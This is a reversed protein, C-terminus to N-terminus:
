FSCRRLPQEAEFPQADATTLWIFLKAAKPGHSGLHIIDALDQHQVHVEYACQMSSQLFKAPQKLLGLWGLRKQPNGFFLENPIGKGPLDKGQIIAFCFMCRDGNQQHLQQPRVMSLWLFQYNWHTDPHKKAIESAVQSCNKPVNAVSIMWNDLGIHFSLTSSIIKAWTICWSIDIWPIREEFTEKCWKHGVYIKMHSKKGHIRM